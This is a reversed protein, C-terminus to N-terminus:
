GRGAMRRACRTLPAGWTSTVVTAGHDACWRAGDVSCGPDLGYLQMGIPKDLDSTRALDLSAESGCILGRPSLLDTCALGVGGFSRCTERWALDCWGAIPALLLNTGLRVEGAPARLTLPVGIM